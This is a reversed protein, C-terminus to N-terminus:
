SRLHRYSECLWIIGISVLVYITLNAIDVPEPTLPQLDPIVFLISGAIFGFVITMIAPWFGLYLTVFLTSIYFTIYPQRAGLLAGYGYTSRKGLHDRDSRDYVSPNPAPHEEADGPFEPLLSAM